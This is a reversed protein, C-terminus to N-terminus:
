NVGWGALGGAPTKLWEHGDEKLHRTAGVGQARAHLKRWNSQVALCCVWDVQAMYVVRFYIEGTGVSWEPQTCSGVTPNYKSSNAQRPTSPDWWCDILVAAIPKQFNNM